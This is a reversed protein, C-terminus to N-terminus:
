TWRNELQDNWLWRNEPLWYCQLYDQMVYTHRKKWMHHWYEDHMAQIANKWTKRYITEMIEAPIRCVDIHASVSSVGLKYNLIVYHKENYGRYLYCTYLVFGRGESEEQPSSPAIPKLKLAQRIRGFDTMDLQIPISGTETVSMTRKHTHTTISTHTRKLTPHFRM